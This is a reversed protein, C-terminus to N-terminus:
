PAGVWEETGDGFRQHKWIPVEAKLTDILARSADFAEGRHAATTAVVVAIDGIALTGVRHVAAVGHVQHERAVRACVERLRELASPHASYDLGAVSRGGDHDRVRGVFLTLGGAADGELAAVVEAVDLPTERLDVLRVAPPLVHDPM